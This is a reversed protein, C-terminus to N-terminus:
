VHGLGEGEDGSRKGCLHEYHRNLRPGAVRDHEDVDGWDGTLHRGLLELVDVGAVMLSDLAAPTAVIHGPSFLVKGTKSM